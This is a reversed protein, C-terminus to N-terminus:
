RFRSLGRIFSDNNSHEQILKVEWGLEKAKDMFIGADCDEELYVFNRDKYSYMSIEPAVGSHEFIAKPVQLWGHGPDCIYKLKLNM